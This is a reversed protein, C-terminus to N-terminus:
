KALPYAKIETINGERDIGYEIATYSNSEVVDKSGDVKYSSAVSVEAIYTYIDSSVNSVYSKFGSYSMNLGEEDIRNYENGGTSVNTVKPMFIKIFDSDEKIKYEDMVTERAKQYDEYSDWTFVTNLFGKIIEDDRKTREKNLGTVNSFVDETKDSQEVEMVSIKNTIADIQDQQAALVNNHAKNIVMFLIFSLLLMGGTIVLALISKSNNEM